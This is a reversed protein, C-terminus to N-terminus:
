EFLMYKSTNRFELHTDPRFVVMRASRSKVLGEPNKAVCIYDGDDTEKSNKIILSGDDMVAMREDDVEVEVNNHMWTISPIPDGNVNCKFVATEGRAIELDLPQEM